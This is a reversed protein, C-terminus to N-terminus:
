KEDNEIVINLQCLGHDSHLFIYVLDLLLFHSYFIPLDFDSICHLHKSELTIWFKMFGTLIGLVLFNECSLHRFKGALNIFLILFAGFNYM